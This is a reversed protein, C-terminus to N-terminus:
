LKINGVQFPPARTFANVWDLDAKPLQLKLPSIIIM